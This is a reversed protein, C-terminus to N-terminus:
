LWKGGMLFYVGFWFALCLLVIGIWTLLVKRAQKPTPLPKLGCTDYVVCHNNCYDRDKTDCYIVENNKSIIM